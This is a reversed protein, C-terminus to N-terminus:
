KFYRFFSKVKNSAVKSGDYVVQVYEITSNHGKLFKEIKIFTTGSFYSDDIFVYNKNDISVDPYWNEVPRDETLLKGNVM